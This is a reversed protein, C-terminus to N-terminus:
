ATEPLCKSRCALPFITWALGVSIVVAASPVSAAALKAAVKVFFSVLVRRKGTTFIAGVKLKPPILSLVYTSPNNTV